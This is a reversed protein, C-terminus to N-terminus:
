GAFVKRWALVEERKQERLHEENAVATPVEWDNKRNVNIELQLRRRYDCPKRPSRSNELLLGVVCQVEKSPDSEVDIKCFWPDSLIKASSPRKTPDYQLIWRILAEVKNTEKEDLDPGARDFCEEM